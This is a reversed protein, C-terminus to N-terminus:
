PLHCSYMNCPCLFFSFSIILFIPNSFSLLLSPTSFPPYIHFTSYLSFFSSFPETSSSSSLHHNPSWPVPPSQLPPYALSSSPLFNNFAVPTFSSSESTLINLLAHFALLLLSNDCLFNLFMFFLM